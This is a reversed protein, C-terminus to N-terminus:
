PQVERCTSSVAVHTDDYGYLVDKTTQRVAECAVESPMHMVYIPEWRGFNLVQWVTFAWIVILM